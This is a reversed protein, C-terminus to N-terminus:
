QNQAKQVQALLGAPAPMQYYLIFMIQLAGKVQWEPIGLASAELKATDPDTAASYGSSKSKTFAGEGEEGEIVVLESEDIEKDKAAASHKGRKSKAAQSAPLPLETAKRKVTVAGSKPPMVAFARARPEHRCLVSHVPSCRSFLAPVGAFAASFARAREPHAFARPAAAGCQLTRVTLVLVLSRGRLM